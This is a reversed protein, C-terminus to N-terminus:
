VSPHSPGALALQPRGVRVVMADDDHDVVESTYKDIMNAYDPNAIVDNTERCGSFYSVSTVTCIFTEATLALEFAAFGFGKGVSVAELWGLQETNERVLTAYKVLADRRQEKM